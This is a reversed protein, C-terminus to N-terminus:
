MRLRPPAPRPRRDGERRPRRRAAAPFDALHATVLVTTGVFVGQSDDYRMVSLGSGPQKVQEFAMLASEASDLEELMAGDADRVLLYRTVGM